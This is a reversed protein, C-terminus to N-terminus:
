YVKGLNLMKLRHCEKCVFIEVKMKNSGALEIHGEFAKGWEHGGFFCIPNFFRLLAILM